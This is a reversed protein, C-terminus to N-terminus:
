ITSAKRQHLLVELFAFGLKLMKLNSNLKIGIFRESKGDLGFGM